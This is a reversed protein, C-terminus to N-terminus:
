DIAKDVGLTLLISPQTIIRDSFQFSSDIDIINIIKWISSSHTHIQDLLHAMFSSSSHCRSPLIFAVFNVNYHIIGKLIFELPYHRFKQQDAFPPNGILIINKYVEIHRANDITTFDQVSIKSKVETNDISHIIEGDIEFGVINKCGKAILSQIIRGDGCSPEIFLSDNLISSHTNTQRLYEFTATILTEINDNLTFYQQLERKRKEKQCRLALEQRYVQYSDEKTFQELQKLNNNYEPFNLIFNTVTNLWENVIILSKKLEARYGKGSRIEWSFQSLKIFRASPFNICVMQGEGMTNGTKRQMRALRKIDEFYRTVVSGNLDVVYLKAGENFGIIEM